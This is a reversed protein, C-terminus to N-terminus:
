AAGGSRAPCGGCCYRVDGYALPNAQGCATGHWFCEGGTGCERPWVGLHEGNERRPSLFTARVAARRRDIAQLREEDLPTVPDLERPRIWRPGSLTDFRVLVQGPYPAHVPNADVVTGLGLVDHRVRAEVVLWARPRDGLPAADVPAAPAPDRDRWALWGCVALVVVVLVVLLWAAPSGPVYASM